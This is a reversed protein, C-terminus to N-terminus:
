RQAMLYIPSPLMTFSEQGKLPLGSRVQWTEPIGQLISVNSHRMSNVRKLAGSFDLLTNVLKQLRLSNRLSTKLNQQQVDTLNESKNLVEELPSLMLTLPTRFEHSINSFFITKARDIEALAEARQREKDLSQLTNIEGSIINALSEFFARYDNDVRRRASAGCVIFGFVIGDNAKLPVIVAEVPTEPWHVSPISSLYQPLDEVIATSCNGIVEDTPWPNVVGSNVFSVDTRLVVSGASIDYILYFPIDERAENLVKQAESFVADASTSGKIVQGVQQVVAARRENIVRYTTEIVANFIGEVKGSEGYIPTFTFDFYCEETYGHRQMPLLADKSGGPRGSFAKEFQPEIASWIDPWVQVATKGFAWPHKNGPIPSWADNYLLVLERGWYIAIPFNSHVCISLASQFSQPWDEQPGVATKSWDIARILEFTPGRQDLFSTGLSNQNAPM